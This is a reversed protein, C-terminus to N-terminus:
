SPSSDQASAPVMRGHDLRLRHTIGAPIEEQYHTVYILALSTRACLQNILEVFDARHTDDLGQCPEDLVLLPPHKVLARALLVLRQQGASLSHFDQDALDALGFADLWIRGRGAQGASPRRYLGVSDFFGSGVVELATTGAPYYAQLEPSVWGIRKKIDWISEGSGRQVGFLRIENAYAQPNDALILSLLTTKGAGNHGSLVWREGPRVVWNIGSLVQLGGYQVEVARMEVLPAGTGHEDELGRAYAQVVSEFAQSLAFVPRPQGDTQSHVQGLIASRSGWGLGRRDEVRLVRDIGLPIEEARSTVLILQPRGRRLLVEIAHHLLGRSDSDLGVFPDDLILLRPSQLLLRVLHVKRSEGHSLHLLRRELLHELHFEAIWDQAEGTPQSGGVLLSAVTDAEEGETSQWRAQHYSAYRTLFDRHTEASLILIEGPLLYPRGHAEDPVFFYSIKGHLLPVRRCLARALLSKGSGTPGWIAWHEGQQIEWSTHEFAPGSASQLTVDQLSIWM